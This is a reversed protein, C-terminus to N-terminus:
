QERALFLLSHNRGEPKFVGPSPASELNWLCPPTPSFLSGSLHQSRCNLSPGAEASTVGGENDEMGIIVQPPEANLFHFQFDSFLPPQSSIWGATGGPVHCTSILPPTSRLSLHFIILVGTVIVNPVYVFM